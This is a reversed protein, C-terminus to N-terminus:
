KLYMKNTTFDFFTCFVPPVYLMFFFMKTERKKPKWPKMNQTDCRVIIDDYM